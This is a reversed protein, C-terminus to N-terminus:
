FSQTAKRIEDILANEEDSLNRKSRYILVDKTMKTGTCPKMVMNQIALEEFPVPSVWLYSGKIARLIEFQSGRDFIEIKNHHRKKDNPIDEENNEIPNIPLYLDGHVLELYDNLLRYPIESMAALPHDACMIIVMQYESLTECKLGNEVILGAFYAEDQTQYRIIGINSVGSFVDHIAGNANTEKYSIELANDEEHNSLWKTFANSIYTARPVSIALKITNEDHPKYLNELQEMQKLVSEAYKLFEDGSKTPIVGKNTREFIPFGVETELEKITRSLNPQGMFLSQAAATISRSKKVEVVYKLQQIDM